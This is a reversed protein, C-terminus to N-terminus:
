KIGLLKGLAKIANWMTKFMFFVFPKKDERFYTTFCNTRRLNRIFESPSVELALMRKFYYFEPMLFVKRVSSRSLESKYDGGSYYLYILYPINCGAATVCYANGDNRFNMELFFDLGNDKDRLFEISFPGSYGTQRVFIKAKEVLDELNQEIKDFSLFFTNDLGKPREIHTRGPIIIEEGSNLSCGLLQFEFDKNIFKQIQIKSCRSEESLFNKLENDNYCIAINDKTGAVSSIAKTICPYEIDSPISGDDVLWTKPVNLGVSTALRSMYEKNMVGSLNGKNEVTPLIFYNDLKEHNNDIISATTDNTAIVITFCTADSFNNVMCAILEDPSHCIWGKEIHKSKLVYGWSERIYLIVYSRIGKEALSEVVGLTNHHDAGVILIKSQM